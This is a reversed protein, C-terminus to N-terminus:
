VFLYYFTFIALAISPLYFSNDSKEAFYLQSIIAFFHYLIIITHSSHSSAIKLLFSNKLNETFEIM